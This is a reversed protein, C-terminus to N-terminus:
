LNYYLFNYVVNIAKIPLIQIIQRYSKARLTKKEYKLTNPWIKARVNFM